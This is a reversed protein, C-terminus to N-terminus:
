ISRMHGLAAAGGGAITVASIDEDGLPTTHPYGALQANRNDGCYQWAFLEQLTFGLDRYAGPDLFATYAAPWIYRCRMKDRQTGLDRLWRGCYLVLPRGIAGSAKEVFRSVGDVVQQASAGANGGGEVDVVPYITGRVWGGVRGTEALFADAQAIPDQAALFYHYATVFWDVGLRARTFGCDAGTAARWTSAFWDAAAPAAGHTAKLMVGHWPAGACALRHVDGANRGDGAYLDVILPDVTPM